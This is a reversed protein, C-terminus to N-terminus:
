MAFGQEVLASLASKYRRHEVIRSPGGVSHLNAIMALCLVAEDREQVATHFRFLSLSEHQHRM